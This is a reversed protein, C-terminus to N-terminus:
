EAALRRGDLMIRPHLFVDRPIRDWGQHRHVEPDSRYASIAEADDPRSRRLVLREPTLRARRCTERIQELLEPSM